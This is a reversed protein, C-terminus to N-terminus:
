APSGANEDADVVPASSACASLVDGLVAALCVLVTLGAGLGGVHYSWLAGQIQWFVHLFPGPTLLRSHVRRRTVACCGETDGMASGWSLFFMLLSCLLWVWGGYKMFAGSFLLYDELGSGDRGSCTPNIWHYVSAEGALLYILSWSFPALFNVIVLAGCNRADDSPVKYASKIDLPTRYVSSLAVACLAEVWFAFVLALMSVDHALIAIDEHFDDDVSVSGDSCVRLSSMETILVAASLLNGAVFIAWKTHRIDEPTVQKNGRGPEAEADSGVPDGSARRM